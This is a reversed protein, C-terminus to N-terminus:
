IYKTWEFHVRDNLYNLNQENIFAEQEFSIYRYAYYHNGFLVLKFLYEIVYFIYFPLYMLEQMQKTHIKEHNITIDDININKRCFLIGFINIAKYGKFPIINNRIIKM